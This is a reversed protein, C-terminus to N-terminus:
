SVALAEIITGIDRDQVLPRDFELVEWLNKRYAPAMTMSGATGTFAYKRSSTPSGDAFACYM